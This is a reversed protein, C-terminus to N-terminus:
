LRPVIGVVKWDAGTFAMEVMVDAETADPEQALGVAITLPGTIRYSKISKPGLRHADVADGSGTPTGEAKTGGDPGPGKGAPQGKRDTTAEKLVRRLDRGQRVIRIVNAPTLISDVAAEALRGGLSDKLQGAIAAGIPGASRKLQDLSRQMEAAVFPKARARVAPFDIKRELAATDSAEIAARIQRASWAPWALYFGALAAVSLLVPLLVRRM